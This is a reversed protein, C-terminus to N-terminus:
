FLADAVIWHHLLAVSTLSPAHSYASDRVICNLDVSCEPGKDILVSSRCHLRGRLYFDHCIDEITSSTEDIRRPIARLRRNIGLQIAIVMEEPFDKPLKGVTNRM